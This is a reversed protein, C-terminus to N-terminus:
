SSSAARVARRNAEVSVRAAACDGVGAVAQVGLGNGVGSRVASPSAGCGAVGVACSRWSPKRLAAASRRVTEGSRTAAGADGLTRWAPATIEAASMVPM